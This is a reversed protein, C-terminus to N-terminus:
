KKYKDCSSVGNKNYYLGIIWSNLDDYTIEDGNQNKEIPNQPYLISLLQYNNLCYLSYRESSESEFWGDSKIKKKIENMKNISLNQKKILITGSNNGARKISEEFTPNYSGFYDYMINEFRLMAPVSEIKKNNTCSISLSLILLILILKM